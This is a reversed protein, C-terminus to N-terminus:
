FVYKDKEFVFTVIFLKKSDLIGKKAYENNIRLHLNSSLEIKANVLTFPFFNSIEIAHNKRKKM